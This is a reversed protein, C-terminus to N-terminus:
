LPKKLEFGNRRLMDGEVHVLGKRHKAFETWLVEGILALMEVILYGISIGRGAKLVLIADARNSPFCFSISCSLNSTRSVYTFPAAM